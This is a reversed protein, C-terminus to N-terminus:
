WYVPHEADYRAEEALEVRHYEACKACLPTGPICTTCETFVEAEPAGYRDCTMSTSYCTM